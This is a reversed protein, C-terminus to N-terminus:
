RRSGDLGLLKFANGSWIMEREHEAVALETVSRITERVWREGKEPGFPYDTGFAVHEAGFFALGCALAPSSGYVATDGYFKRFYELVPLRLATKRESPQVFAGSDYFGQIRVAFYPIMGGLHHTVIRLDPFRELVGGLVLRSMALSTDFPWGLVRSLMFEGTWPYYTWEAPHMLVAVGRREIREFLPDLEADDLPRGRVHSFIQVARLGLGEVSREFERVAAAPDSMPLNAAGLVRGASKEEVEALADNAVACLEAETDASRTSVTEPLTVVQIDIGMRDLAHIRSDLDYLHAYGSDGSRDLVLPFPEGTLRKLTEVAARPVFHAFIDVIM